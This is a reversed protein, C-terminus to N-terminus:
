FLGKQKLRFVVKSKIRGIAGEQYGSTPILSRNELIYHLTEAEFPTLEVNINKM